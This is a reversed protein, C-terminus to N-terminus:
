LHTLVHINLVWLSVSIYASWTVVWMSHSIWGADNSCGLVGQYFHAKGSFYPYNLMVSFEQLPDFTIWVMRGQGVRSWLPPRGFWPYASLGQATYVAWRWHLWHQANALRESHAQSKSSHSLVMQDNLKWTKTFHNRWIVPYSFQPKSLSLAHGCLSSFNHLQFGVRSKSRFNNM